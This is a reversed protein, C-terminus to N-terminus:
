GAREVVVLGRELGADGAVVDVGDVLVAEEVAIAAGAVVAAVDVDAAQEARGGDRHARDARVLVVRGVARRGDAGLRQRLQADVDAALQRRGAAVAEAAALDAVGGPAVGDLGVGVGRRVAGTGRQGIGGLALGAHLDGRAAVGVAAALGADQAGALV